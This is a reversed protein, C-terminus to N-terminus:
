APIARTRILEAYWKASDKPLRELTEYDVHVIGFRKSYGYGWEFNDLLSWVQYGRLDVGRAMARHAATFHRRLYDIRDLDLVAPGNPGRSVVDDFAAGNETVMLPVEPYAGSLAILLDELGSPDINWGMATYPGPQELFEVHEPRLDVLRFLRQDMFSRYSGADGRGLGVFEDLNFTRVESWDVQEAQSARVVQQYFPLATRGTPLGLVVAPLRRITDVVTRALAIAVAEESAYTRCIM